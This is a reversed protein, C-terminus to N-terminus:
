DQLCHLSHNLVANHQMEDPEESHLLVRKPNERICLTVSAIINGNEVALYVTKHM